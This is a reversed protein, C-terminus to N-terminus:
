RRADFAKQEFTEQNEGNSPCVGLFNHVEVDTAFYHTRCSLIIKARGLAARNLERFNRLTVQLNGRSAMEDFGDLILLVSGERSLHEFAAYSPARVGYTDLLDLVIQKLSLAQTYERLDIFVPVIGRAGGAIVEDEYRRALNLALHKLLTSKGTGFDGLLTMHNATLDRLWEEFIETAPQGTTLHERRLQPEIFWSLAVDDVLRIILDRVYPRFDILSQELQSITLLEVDDHQSHAKAEKVFGTSAVMIGRLKPDKAHRAADLRIRFQDYQATLVPSSQDKCEVIYRRVLPGSRDEIYLDVQRGAVLLDREVAYGLLAFLHAVRQEFVRGTTSSM